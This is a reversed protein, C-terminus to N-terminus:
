DILDRKKLVPLAVKAAAIHKVQEAKDDPLKVKFERDKIYGVIGEVQADPSLAGPCSVGLYDCYTCQWPNGVYVADPGKNERVNVQPELVRPLEESEHINLAVEYAREVSADDRLVYGVKIARQGERDVYLIIGYDADEAMMYSQAQLVNTQRPLPFNFTNSRITKVDIVAREGNPGTILIDLRGVAKGVLAESVDKEVEVVQWLDGGQQHLRAFGVTLLQVMRDHIRNGHDWMLATGLKDPKKPAGQLRLKLQRHCKGGEETPIFVGLDSAHLKQQKWEAVSGDSMQRGAGKLGEVLANELKPLTVEPVM